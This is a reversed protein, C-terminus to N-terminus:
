SLVHYFLLFQIHVALEFLRVLAKCLYYAVGSANEVLYVVWYRWMELDLRLFAARYLDM